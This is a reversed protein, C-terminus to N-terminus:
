STEYLKDFKAHSIPWVRDRRDLSRVIADGAEYDVDGEATTIVGPETAYGILEAGRTKSMAQIPGDHLDAYANLAKVVDAPPDADVVEYFDLTEDNPYIDVPESGMLFTGERTVHQDWWKGPKSLTVDPKVAVAAVVRGPRPTVVPLASEPEVPILHVTDSTYSM